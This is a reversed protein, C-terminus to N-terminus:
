EAHDPRPHLETGGPLRYTACSSASVHTSCSYMTRHAYRLPFSVPNQRYCWRLMWHYQALWQGPEGYPPWTRNISWVPAVENHHLPLHKDPCTREAINQRSM